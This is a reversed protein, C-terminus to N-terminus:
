YNVEQTLLDKLGKKYTRSLNIWTGNEILLKTSNIIKIKYINVIYSRHVRVFMNSPLIKEVEKLSNRDIEPNVKNKLFFEVYKDDASVYLIDDLSIVAKSKLTIMKTPKQRQENKKLQLEELEQQVMKFEQKVKKKKKFVIFVVVGLGFAVLLALFLSSKYFQNNHYAKYLREQTQKNKLIASSANRNQIAIANNAPIVPVDISSELDFYATAKDPDGLQNYARALLNYNQRMMPKFDIQKALALSSDAYKITNNFDKQLFYVDGIKSLNSIVVRAAPIGTKLEINKKSESFGSTSKKLYVLASDLRNMYYYANGINMYVLNLANLQRNKKYFREAKSFYYLASDHYSTKLHNAAINQLIGYYSNDDDHKLALNRAKVYYSMSKEFEKTRSKSTGLLAYARIEFVPLKYTKSLQIIRQAKVYVSDFPINPGYSKRFLGNIEQIVEQQGQALNVSTILVFFATLIKLRYFESM